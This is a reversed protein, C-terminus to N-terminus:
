KLKELEAIPLKTIDNIEKLSYGKKLMTKAINNKEDLKAEGIGTNYELEAQTYDSYLAICEEDANLEEFERKLKEKMSEKMDIGELYKIFEEKTNALILGCWKDFRSKNYFKGKQLDVLDVEINDIKELTDENTLFYKEIVKKKNKYNTNLNIQITEGISLYDREGSKLKSAAVSSVYSINRNLLSKNFTNNLEINISRGDVEVLLDVQKKYESKHNLSLNRHKIDIKDKLTNRPLDFYCELFNELIGINQYNNFIETFMFDVYLPIFINYTTVM